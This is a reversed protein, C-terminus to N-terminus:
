PQMWSMALKFVWANFAMQVGSRGQSIGTGRWPPRRGRGRRAPDSQRQVGAPRFTPPFVRGQHATSEVPETDPTLRVGRFVASFSTVSAM